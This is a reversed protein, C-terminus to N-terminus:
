LLFHLQNLSSNCNILILFMLFTMKTILGNQHTSGEVFCSFFLDARLCIQSLQNFLYTQISKKPAAQFSLDTEFTGTKHLIILEQSLFLFYNEVLLTFGERLIHSILLQDYFLPLFPSKQMLPQPVQSVLHLGLQKKFEELKSLSFILYNQLFLPISQSILALLFKERAQQSHRM